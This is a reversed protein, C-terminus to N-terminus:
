NTTISDENVGPIRGVPQLNSPTRSTSCTATCIKDGNMLLRIVGLEESPFYCQSSSRTDDCCSFTSVTGCSNFKSKSVSVSIRENADYEEPEPATGNCGEGCGYTLTYTTGQPPNSTCSATCTVNSVIGIQGNTITVSVGSSNRCNWGAFSEYRELDACGDGSKLTVTNNLIYSSNDTPAPSGHCTPNNGTGCLYTVKLNTLEQFKLQINTLNKIETPTKKFSGNKDVVQNNGSYWGLFNTNNKLDSSIYNGIGTNYVNESCSSPSPTIFIANSDCRKPNTTERYLKITNGSQSAGLGVTTYVAVFLILIKKM